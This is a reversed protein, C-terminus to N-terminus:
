DVFMSSLSQGLYIRNISEGILGAVSVCRIKSSKKARESLPVTDTVVLEDLESSEINDLAKGSLVAHTCYAVVKLAGKREAGKFRRM